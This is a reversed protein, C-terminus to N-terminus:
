RERCKFRQDAFILMHEYYLGTGDPEIILWFQPEEDEYDWAWVRDFGNVWYDTEYKVGAVKITGTERDDNVTAVVLVPSNKDEAPDRCEFTEGLVATASGLLSLAVILRTM